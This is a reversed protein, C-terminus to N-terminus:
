DSEEDDDEGEEQEVTSDQAQRRKLEDITKIAHSTYGKALATHRAVTARLDKYTEHIYITHNGGESAVFGFGIYLKALDDASWDSLSRRMRQLLKEAQSM